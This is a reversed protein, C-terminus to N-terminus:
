QKVLAHSPDFTQTGLTGATRTRAYVVPVLEAHEKAKFEVHVLVDVTEFPWEIDDNHFRKGVM